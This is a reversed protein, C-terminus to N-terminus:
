KLREERQPELHFVGNITVAKVRSNRMRLVNIGCNDQPISRYQALPIDLLRTLYARNVVNHAVIVIRRGVNEVLLKDFALKICDVPFGSVIFGEVGEAVARRECTVPERYVISHSVGSCQEAPAVVTLKGRRCLPGVLARLGPADIGDDNTLLIRQVDM